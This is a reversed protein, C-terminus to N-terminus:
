TRRLAQALQDALQGLAGSMAAAQQAAGHGAMPQQATFARAAGGAGGPHSIAYQVQLVVTGYGVGPQVDFRQVDLEVRAAPTASLTGSAAFVVTGPLRQTLDQALVRTLMEGFPAGWLNLSDISVQYEASSRVVGARDLYGALGPQRLEVSTPGGALVSGPVPELTYYHAPPSACGALLGAMVFATMRRM